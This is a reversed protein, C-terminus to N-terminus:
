PDGPADSPEAGPLEMLGRGADAGFDYRLGLDVRALAVEPEAQLIAFRLPQDSDRLHIVTEGTVPEGRYRSVQVAEAMTWADVFRSLADASLDRHESAVATPTLTWRGDDDLRVGFLPLRIESPHVGSPLLRQSVFAPLDAQVQYFYTDTVLHIRAGVRVYRRGDIPETGGFDVLTDNFKVRAAPADLGYQALNKDDAAFTGRSQAQALRLVTQVRFENASVEIPARVRWSEADRRLVIKPRNAVEISIDHIDAAQLPTIRAVEDEKQGPAFVALLALAAVAALLLLNIGTRANM